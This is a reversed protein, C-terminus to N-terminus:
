EDDEEDENERKEIIFGDIGKFYAALQTHNPDSYVRFNHNNELKSSQGEVEYSEDGRYILYTRMNQTSPGKMADNIGTYPCGDSREAKTGEQANKHSENVHKLFSQFNEDMIRDWEDEEVPMEEFDKRIRILDGPLLQGGKHLEVLKSMTMLLIDKEIKKV